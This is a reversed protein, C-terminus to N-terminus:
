IENKNKNKRGEMGDYASFIKYARPVSVITGSPYYPGQDSTLLLIFPLNPLTQIFVIGLIKVKM